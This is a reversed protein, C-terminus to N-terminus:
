NPYFTEVTQRKNSVIRWQRSFFFVIKLLILFNLFLLKGWNLMQEVRFLFCFPVFVYSSPNPFSIEFIKSNFILFDLGLGLNFKVIILVVVDIDLLLIKKAREVSIFSVIIVYSCYM